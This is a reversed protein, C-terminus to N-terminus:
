VREVYFMIKTIFEEEFRSTIYDNVCFEYSDSIIKLSHDRCYQILKIYSSAIEYYDGVHYLAATLGKPLRIINQVSPVNETTLFAMRAETYRKARIKEIPVSVGCQFFIPLNETLAQAYCKKTAISIEKMTFPSTVDHYLLFTEDTMGVVPGSTREAYAREVQECRHELRNQILSLEEIKAGIVSLQQRFSLISDETTYHEMHRKIDNLSFGIKKMILITDLYDMQQASYYRYGNEPDTFSPKFLGIKDYYLLTQKSINQYKALEGASFMNEM